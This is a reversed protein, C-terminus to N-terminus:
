LLAEAGEVRRIARTLGVYLVNYEQRAQVLRHASVAEARELKESLEALPTWDGAMKVAGFELGKARHATMLCVRAASMSVSSSLMAIVERARGQELITVLRSLGPDGASQEALDEWSRFPKLETAKVGALNGKRLALASLLQTQLEEGRDLHFPIGRAHMEQAEDLLGMNSRALIAYDPVGKPLEQTGGVGTLTVGHLASPCAGLVRNAMAAIDPGFRFSQSLETEAGSLRDLADIAGRWGHIAQASDGVAIVSIGSQKLIAVQVPNLDQAEDAMVYDLGDFARACLDPSLQVIKVYADHSLRGDKMRANWFDTAVEVLIPSLLSVARTARGRAGAAVLHDPDGTAVTIAQRAHAPTIKRADSQCFAELTRMAALGTSFATWGSPLRGMFRDLLGADLIDRRIDYREPGGSMMHSVAALCLGHFTKPECTTDAFKPRADQAVTRNFAVYVGRKPSLARAMALLTTTKGTGAGSRVRLAEGPQLGTAMEVARAQEATPENRAILPAATTTAIPTQITM